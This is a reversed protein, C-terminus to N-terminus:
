APHGPDQNGSAARLALPTPKPSTRKAALVALEDLAAKKSKLIDNKDMKKIREDTKFNRGIGVTPDAPAAV